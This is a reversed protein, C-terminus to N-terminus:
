IKIELILKILHKLLYNIYVLKIRNSIKIIISKYTYYPTMFTILYFNM